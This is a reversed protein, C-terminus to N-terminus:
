WSRFDPWSPPSGVRQGGLHDVVPLVGTLVIGWGAPDALLDWGHWGVDLLVVVLGVAVRQIPTM